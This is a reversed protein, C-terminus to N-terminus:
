YYETWFGLYQGSGSTIAVVYYYNPQVIFIIPIGLNSSSGIFIATTPASNADCKVTYTVVGGAFVVVLMVKGTTNQYTTGLTRSPVTTNTFASGGGAIPSGNVRFTGTINVDGAVDLRYAPTQTGIGVSNTSRNISLSTAWPGVFSDLVLTSNGGAIRWGFIPVGGWSHQIKHASGPTDSAVADNIDLNATPANTGLGVNGTSSIVISHAPDGFASGLTNNSIYFSQDNAKSGISGQFVSPQFLTIACRTATPSAIYLLDTPATTGIGVNGAIPNLCLSRSTTGPLIAQIWSYDGAHVGCLLAESTVPVATALRFGFAGSIAASAAQSPVIIDCPGAPAATGIGVNGASTIRMREANSGSDPATQFTLDMGRYGATTGNLIMVISARVPASNTNLPDCFRFAPMAAGNFDGATTQIEIGGRTVIVDGAGLAAPTTSGAFIVGVNSLAFGGGNINSAWPTQPSGSGGTGSATITVDIRNAGSNNVGGITVNTGAILNLAPQAGVLAGNVWVGLPSPTAAITLDVRNAGSNDAVTLAAGSGQILNIQHRTGVLAGALSVQVQQNVTDAVVSLTRDASLDGGGTLGTGTNIKRTTPVGTAPAAAWKIGLTQTSDATLIQGDAGVALRTTATGHAILDGKTTTPDQM